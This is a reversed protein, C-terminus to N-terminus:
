SNCIFEAPLDILCILAALEESNFGLCEEIEAKCKSCVKVRSSEKGCVDCVVEVTKTSKM